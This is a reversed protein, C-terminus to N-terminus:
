GRSAAKLVDPVYTIRGCCGNAPGHQHLGSHDSLEPPAHAGPPCRSDTEYEAVSALIRAHLRGAPSALSFGDKVSVLDVKRATLEDFLQCLGKTTRGWGTSGGFM